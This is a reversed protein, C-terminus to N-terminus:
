PNKVDVSTVKGDKETIAVVADKKIDDWKGEKGNIIPKIGKVDFEKDKGDSTITLRDEKFSIFKGTASAPKDDPVLTDKLKKKQDDTLVKVKDAYEEAKLEKIKKELDDIKTKYETHIKYVKQKQDATLNLDKWGPTM